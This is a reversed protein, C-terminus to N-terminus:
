PWFARVVASMWLGAAFLICLFVAASGLDKARKSLLHWELGARDVAGEVATNLLEVVMLLVLSGILIAAEVWTRAIWFALPILVISAVAETRFAPEAWGARLGALSYTTAHWLRVLGRRRKQLNDFPTNEPPTGPM